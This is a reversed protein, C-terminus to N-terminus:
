LEIEAPAVVSADHGLAATPLDLKTIRWGRHKLVGRYPPKGGVKGTLKLEAARFGAEIEVTSDEPAAFIPEIAANQRLAQRCGEHVVRAAAGIDGDDFEAIDQQIFDVFRGERQLLGLLALASGDRRGSLEDRPEDDRRAAVEDPPDEVAPAGEGAPLAPVGDRTQWVRFAFAGDFLVHFGCTLALWLRKGFPLHEPEVSRRLPSATV